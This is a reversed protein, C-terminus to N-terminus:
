FIDDENYTKNNKAYDVPKKAFFDTMSNGFLEEEMWYTKNLLQIDYPSLVFKTKMGIQELSWNLRNKVYIKLIAPNLGEENFDGLMWDILASEAIFAEYVEEQVKAELEADFYYPYEERLTNIIKIGVYAHILEENRTYQVQQATDKLINKNRNFWLVIYFQTFLSVYEVFLTFLVISYIYQKKNDKFVKSNYKRLYNVRGAVVPENLNKEFIDRIRLTELLKEYAQNHIVEINAMVYGLDYMAPHPLNNGLEAWFRKVAVEVQGIASLTRVIIQKEQESMESHFQNYDGKFDFENPTWHGQWMKDIFEQTWPYHNPKRPIFEDFLAM